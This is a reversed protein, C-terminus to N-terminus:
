HAVAVVPRHGPEGGRPPHDQHQASDLEYNLRKGDPQEAEILRNNDDHKLTQAQVPMAFQSIALLFPWAYTFPNM